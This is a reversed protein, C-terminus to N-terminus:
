QMLITTSRKLMDHVIGKPPETIITPDFVVSHQGSASAAALLIAAPLIISKITM